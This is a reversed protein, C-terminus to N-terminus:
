RCTCSGINVSPARKISGLRTGFSNAGGSGSPEYVTWSGDSEKKVTYLMDILTGRSQKRHIFLKGPIEPNETVVWGKKIGNVFAKKDFDNSDEENAGGTPGDTPKKPSGNRGTPGSGDPNTPPTDSEDTRTSALVSVEFLVGESKRANRTDLVIHHTAESFMRGTFGADYQPKHGGSNLFVFTVYGKEHLAQAAAHAAKADAATFSLFIRKEAEANEWEALFSTENEATYGSKDTQVAAVIGTKGTEFKKMWDKNKIIEGPDDILGSLLAIRPRSSQKVDSTNCAVVDIGKNHLPKVLEALVPDLQSRDGLM